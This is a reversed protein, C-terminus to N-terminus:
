DDTLHCRHFQGPVTALYHNAAEAAGTYVFINFEFNAERVSATLYELGMGSAERCPQVPTDRV